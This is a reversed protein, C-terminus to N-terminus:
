MLMYSLSISEGPRDTACDKERMSPRRERVGCPAVALPRSWKSAQLPQMVGKSLPPNKSSLKQIFTVIRRNFTLILM